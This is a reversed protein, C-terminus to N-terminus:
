PKLRFGIEASPFAGGLDLRPYTIIHGNRELLNLLIQDSCIDWVIQKTTNKSYCLDLLINCVDETNSCKEYVEQKFSQKFIMRASQAEDETMRAKRASLAHSKVTEQYRELVEALQQYSRKSYPKATKYISHDFETNSAAEKIPDFADEVMRCLRNMVSDTISLPMYDYYNQLFLQEDDTREEKAILEILSMRFRELCNM